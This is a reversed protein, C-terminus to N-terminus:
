REKKMMHREHYGRDLLGNEDFQDHSYAIQYVMVPRRGELEVMVHVARVRKGEFRAVPYAAPDYYMPSRKTTPIRFIRDKEDVLFCRYSLSPESM